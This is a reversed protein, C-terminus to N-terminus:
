TTFWDKLIDEPRETDEELPLPEPVKRDNQKEALVDENTEIVSSAMARALAIKRIEKTKLYVEERALQALLTNDFERLDVPTCGPKQVIDVTYSSDDCDLHVYARDTYHFAAKILATRSYLEKSYTFRM